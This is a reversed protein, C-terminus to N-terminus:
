KKPNAYGNDALIDLMAITSDEMDNVIGDVKSTIYNYFVQLIMAVILGLVTTLLAVKIGGAVDSPRIDGAAEIKDFAQIMGVVTGFFGLMPAIAICLSIWILGKELLSSQLSANAVIAKEVGEVGDDARRLGAGLVEATPGATAKCISQAQEIDGAKIASELQAVLKKTNISALGLTIVREIAIALGFILFVLIPAMYEWGGDIFYKKMTQHATRTPEATAAPTPKPAEPTTTPAPAPATVSTAPTDQCYVNNYPVFLSASTVALMLFYKKM